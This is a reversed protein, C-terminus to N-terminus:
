PALFAKTFISNEESKLRLFLLGTPWAHTNIAALNRGQVAPGLAVRYALTLAPTFVDLSLNEAPGDLEFAALVQGRPMPNPVM